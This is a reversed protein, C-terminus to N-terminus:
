GAHAKIIRGVTREYKVLIDEELERSLPADLLSVKESSELSEPYYTGLVFVLIVEPFTEYVKDILDLNPEMSKMLIFVPRADHRIQEIADESDDADMIDIITAVVEAYLDDLSSGVNADTVEATHNELLRGCALQIYWVATQFNDANIGIAKATRARSIVEHVQNVFDGPVKFPALRKVVAISSTKDLDDRASALARGVSRIQKEPLANAVIRARVEISTEEVIWRPLDTRLEDALKIDCDPKGGRLQRAIETLLEDGPRGRRCVSSLRELRNKITETLKQWERDNEAQYKSVELESLLSKNPNNLDEPQVDGLLIPMLEFNDGGWRESRIKRQILITCEKAVFPRMLAEECLLLIAGDCGELHDFIQDNWRDGLNIFEADWAFEIDEIRVEDTLRKM